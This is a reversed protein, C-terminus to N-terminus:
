FGIRLLDIIEDYYQADDPDLDKMYVALQLPTMGKLDQACVSSACQAALLIRVCEIDCSAVSEHLPSRGQGSCQRNILADRLWPDSLLLGLANVNNVECAIHLLSKGQRNLTCLDKRRSAELMYEMLEQSYDPSAILAFMASEGRACEANGIDAGLDILHRALNLSGQQCALYLPTRKLNDQAEIDGSGQALATITALDRSLIALHIALMGAHDGKVRITSTMARKSASLLIMTMESYGAIAARHLPIRHGHEGPLCTSNLVLEDVQGRTCSEFLIFRAAGCANNMVAMDLISSGDTSRALPCSACETLLARLVDLNDSASAYHAATYGRTDVHDNVDLSRSTYQYLTETDPAYMVATAGYHDKIAPDAGLDLLHSVAKAHGLRTARILPSMGDSARAHNILTVDYDHLCHVCARSRAVMMVHNGYKNPTRPDWGRELLFSLCYASPMKVALHMANNGHIDTASQSAGHDLLTGICSRGNDKNHTIALMLATQGHETKCDVQVGLSLVYVLLVNNDAMAAYHLAGYGTRPHLSSVDCKYRHALLFLPSGPGIDKRLALAEAAVPFSADKGYVDFIRKSTYFGDEMVMAAFLKGSAIANFLDPGSLNDMVRELIHKDVDQISTETLMNGSTKYKPNLYLSM